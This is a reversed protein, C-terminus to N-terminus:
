WRFGASARQSRATSQPSCRERETATSHLFGDRTVLDLRPPPTLHEARCTYPPFARYGERGGRGGRNDKIIKTVFTPRGNVYVVDDSSVTNVIM